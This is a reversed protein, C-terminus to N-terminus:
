FTRIPRVAQNQLKGLGAVSNTASSIDRAWASAATSYQSSTWYYAGIFGGITIKNNWLQTLENYSPLYWDSYVGTGTETNIYNYCQLAVYTGTTGQGAVIANTNANGTGMAQSTTVSTTNISWFAPTLDSIGAILGHTEGAVFGPDGNVFLYAITGGQWPDGVGITASTTFSIENGYATGM